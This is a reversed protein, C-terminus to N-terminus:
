ADARIRPDLRPALLDAALNGAVVAISTVVVCGVLVPGDRDLAARVGLEGLGPWRFVTETVIDASVLMAFDVGLSTVLPIMANRLVHRTLVRSPALGKARATRVWDQTLIGATEDRALRTYYTAGYLGLTLAPLVLCQLHDSFTRGFGDLPLLRLRYALVYQLLLALLFMPASLGLLTTSVLVRDLLTGRRVAALVGISVGLVFQLLLAAGALAFTRPMRAAVVDVVPQRRQFSRGLDVHVARSSFLPLVVACNAHEPPRKPELERPGVHILTRWFLAYQAFPSRNLGLQERIRAIDAPRAQEGAVLRAPDGGIFRNVVFVTSVVAWVVFFSAAIRRGLKRV